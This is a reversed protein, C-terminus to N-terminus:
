TFSITMSEQATLLQDRVSDYEDIFTDETCLENAFAKVFDYIHSDLENILAKRFDHIHQDTLQMLPIYVSFM